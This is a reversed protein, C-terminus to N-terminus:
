EDELGDASTSEWPERETLERAWTKPDARLAAYDADLAQLMLERRYIEISQSLAETLTVHKMRAIATLAAHAAPAIRVTASM